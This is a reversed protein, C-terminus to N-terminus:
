RRNVNEADERSFQNMHVPSPPLSSAREMLEECFATLTKKEESPGIIIDLREKELGIDEIIARTRMVRKIARKNGELYRCAGEPCAIVYVADAFEELAKLLHIYELRGTCPISFLRIHKGYIKELNQRHYENGEPVNQCYFIALNRRQETRMKPHKRERYFIRDTSRIELNFPRGVEWILEVGKDIVV